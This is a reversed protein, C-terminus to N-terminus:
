QPTRDPNRVLWKDHIAAELDVGFNRALLLTHALVDALEARFNCEIEDRTRGKARAQGVRMLFSQTLEGVEEHLKLIFWNDDREIGHRAAYIRSVAEVEGSLESLHM